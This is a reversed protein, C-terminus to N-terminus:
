KESRRRSGTVKTYDYIAYIGIGATAWAMPRLLTSDALFAVLTLLQALTVAKGGARAPIAVPKGRGLTMVFGATAWIDRVLVGVIEYYRLGGAFAVVGFACAMFVKDAIPDLIAGMRSSGFRRALWGDMLDSLAAVALVLFRIGADGIAVFLIALPFRLLSLIDAPSWRRAGQEAVEHRRGETM